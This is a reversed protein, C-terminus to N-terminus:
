EEITPADGDNYVGLLTKEFTEGDIVNTLSVNYLYTNSGSKAYVYLNYSDIDYDMYGSFM